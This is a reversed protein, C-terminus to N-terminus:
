HKKINKSNVKKAIEEKNLILMIVKEKQRKEEKISQLFRM